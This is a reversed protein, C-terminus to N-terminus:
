FLFRFQYFRSGARPKNDYPHFWHSRYCRVSNSRSASGPLASPASSPPPSNSRTPAGPNKNQSGTQNDKVSLPEHSRSSHLSSQPGRAGVTHSHTPRDAEIPPSFTRYEDNSNSRPKGTSSSGNAQRASSPPPEALSLKTTRDAKSSSAPSLKEVSTGSISALRSKYSDRESRIRELEKLIQNYGSRQKEILKWLQANQSSLTNREIVVQDLAAALPNQASAHQKLLAEVTIVPTASAVSATAVSSTSTSHSHTNTISGTTSSTSTSPRIPSPSPQSAQSAQPFPLNDKRPTSYDRSGNSSSSPSM